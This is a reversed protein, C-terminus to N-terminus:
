VQSGFGACRVEAQWSAGVGFMSDKDGILLLSKSRGSFQPQYSVSVSLSERLFTYKGSATTSTAIFDQCQKFFLDSQLEPM